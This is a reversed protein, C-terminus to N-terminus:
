TGLQQVFNGRFHPYRLTDAISPNLNIYHVTSTFSVLFFQLPNPWIDDKIIEAVPDSSSDTESFWNFFTPVEDLGRKRGKSESSQDKVM